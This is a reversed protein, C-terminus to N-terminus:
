RLLPYDYGVHFIVGDGSSLANFAFVHNGLHVPFRHRVHLREAIREVPGIRFAAHKKIEVAFAAFSERNQFCSALANYRGSDDASFPHRTAKRFGSASPVACVVADLDNSVDGRRIRASTILCHSTILTSSISLLTEMESAFPSMPMRITAGATRLMPANPQPRMRKRSGSSISHSVCTSNAAPGGSQSLRFPMM